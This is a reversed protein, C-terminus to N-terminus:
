PTTTVQAEFKYTGASSITYDSYTVLKKNTADITGGMWAGETGAVTIKFRGKLNNASSTIGFKLIDGIKLNQLDTTTLPTTQYVGGVKKYIKIDMCAGIVPTITPSITPSATPPTTPLVTPEAGCVLGGCDGIYCYRGCAYTFDGCGQSGCERTTCSLGVPAIQLNNIYDCSNGGITTTGDKTRSGTGGGGGAGACITDCSPHPAGTSCSGGIIWGDDGCDCRSCGGPM